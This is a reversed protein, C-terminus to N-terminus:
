NLVLALERGRSTPDVAGLRSGDGKSSLNDSRKLGLPFGKSGGGGGNVRATGTLILVRGKGGM